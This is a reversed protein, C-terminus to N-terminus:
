LFVICLFDTLTIISTRIKQDDVDNVLNQFNAEIMYLTIVLIFQFVSLMSIFMDKLQNSLHVDNIIDCATCRIVMKLFEDFKRWPQTSYEQLWQRSCNGNNQTCHIWNWAEKEISSIVKAYTQFDNEISFITLLFM